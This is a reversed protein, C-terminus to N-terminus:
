RGDGRLFETEPYAYALLGLTERRHYAAIFLRACSFREKSEEAPKGAGQTYVRWSIEIRRTALSATRWTV